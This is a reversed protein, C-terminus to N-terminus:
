KRRRSGRRSVTTKRQMGREGGMQADMMNLFANTAARNVKYAKQKEDYEKQSYTKIDYGLNKANQIIKQVSLQVRDGNEKYVVGKRVVFNSKTGGMDVDFAALNRSENVGGAGGRGGM